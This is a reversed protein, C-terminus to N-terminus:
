KRQRTPLWRPKNDEDPRKEYGSELARVEVWANIAKFTCAWLAVALLTGVAFVALSLGEDCCKAM